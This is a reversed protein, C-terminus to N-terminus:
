PFYTQQVGRVKYSHYLFILFINWLNKFKKYIAIDMDEAIEQQDSIVSQSM